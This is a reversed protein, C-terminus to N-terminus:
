PNICFYLHQKIFILWFRFNAGLYKIEQERETIIYYCEKLCIDITKKINKQKKQQNLM